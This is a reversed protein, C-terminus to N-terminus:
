VFPKLKNDAHDLVSSYLYSRFRKNLEAQTLTGDLRALYAMFGAETKIPETELAKYDDFDKGFQGGLKLVMISSFFRTQAFSDHAAINTENLLRLEADLYIKSEFDRRGNLLLAAVKHQGDFLRIRSGVVRGISPQLVPHQQFHRFLKFVKDQILYRPQLGMTHDEDDDSDILDIPLKAYCYRWGTTPCKHLKSEIHQSASEILVSENQDSVAVSQSFQQIDGAKQLYILLHKLTLKEGSRFFDELRLKIRFDELSLTGKEKNHQGCMPAINNLESEGGKGFATIHDFQLEESDAITHGNAFCKRGYRELITEKEDDSLQRKLQITM